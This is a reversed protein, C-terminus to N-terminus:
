HCYASGNAVMQPQGYLQFLDEFNDNANEVKAIEKVKPQCVVATGTVTIMFVGSTVETITEQMGIVATAGAGGANKIMEDMADAKISELAKQFDLMGTQEISRIGGSFSKVVRRSWTKTGRVMGVTEVIDQDGLTNTTTVIMVSEGYAGISKNKILTMLQNSIFPEENGRETGLRAIFGGHM